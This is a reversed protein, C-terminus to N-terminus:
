DTAKPGDKKGSSNPSGIILGPNRSGAHTVFLRRYKFDSEVASRFM